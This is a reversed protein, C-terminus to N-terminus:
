KKPSRALITTFLEEATCGKVLEKHRKLVQQHDPNYVLNMNNM